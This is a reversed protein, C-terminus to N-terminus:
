GFALSLAAILAIIALIVMGVLFKGQFDSIFDKWSM